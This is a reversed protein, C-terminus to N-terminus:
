RVSREGGAVLVAARHQSMASPALAAVLCTRAKLVQAFTAQMM